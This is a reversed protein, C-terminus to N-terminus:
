APVASRSAGAPLGLEARFDDVLRAFGAELGIEPRWGLLERARSADGRFRAVDFDRPPASNITLRNGSEREAMGALEALSTGVESVLHLPPLREGGALAELATDLASVVDDIHTFDFVCDEGDVRIEGARAAERAFAPIVRDVHDETRGYVNSFRFIAANVGTEGLERTLHEGELKTRGYINCPKLNADEAVPLMDPNGYVERSSGFLVFPRRASEAIARYVNRTGEINVARCLEPDREGWAVRSVAALHVVGDCDGLYDRVRQADRTDLPRGDDGPMKLDYGVTEIGKGALVEGLRRGILGAAGTILIKM